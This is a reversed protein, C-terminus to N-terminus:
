FDDETPLLLEMLNPCIFEYTRPGVKRMTSNECDVGRDVGTETDYAYIGAIEIPGIVEPTTNEPESAAADGSMAVSESVASIAMSSSSSTQKAPGLSTLESEYGERVRFFFRKGTFSEFFQNMEITQTKSVGDVPIIREDAGIYIETAGRATLPAAIITLVLLYSANM